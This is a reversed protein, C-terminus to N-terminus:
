AHHSVEQSHPVHVGHREALIHRTRDIEAATQAASWGLAAGTIQALEDLLAGTLEGQLALTTRRLVLDDLHCIREHESMFAIERRSYGPHQTLPADSAAVLYAAVVEARTGYRELLTKLRDEPLGSQAHLANLWRRLADDDAPYAKGGGIALGQSSQVRQRGLRDLLRDTVQEAFARFTTWKGGILHYIPFHLDDGPETVECHHDRSIQGTTETEMRPLPRVGCFYSVVDSRQIALGPLVQRISDLIYTVEDEECLAADPDDIKLDTSGALVKGLLAFLICIRGDANEFYLMEEGLAALLDPHDLILHSGKTGGILATSRNLTRNIADIWAGGANIVVQPRITWTDGSLEDRLTVQDGEGGVLSVYNLARAQPDIAAADLALELGLREPYSIWADYYTATCLIRPNLPPHAALSQARSSFHHRPMVQQRSTFLDYLTLGIKVILAGRNVPPQEFGLFRLGASFIGSFWGYIPITTPLPHVYHPANLLLLNREKLSERVLRFEGNELYRLGGHIMRSLAASAGSCFDGKDILLADVGQLALERLLGLGNIGGGVILVTVEPKQRAEALLAARKM